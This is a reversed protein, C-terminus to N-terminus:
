LPSEKTVHMPGSFEIEAQKEGSEPDLLLCGSGDTDIMYFIDDTAIFENTEEVHAALLKVESKIRKFHQKLASM